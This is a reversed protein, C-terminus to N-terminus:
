RFRHGTCSYVRLPVSWVVQYSSDYLLLLVGAVELEATLAEVPEGGVNRQPSTGRSDVMTWIAETRTAREAWAAYARGALSFGFM